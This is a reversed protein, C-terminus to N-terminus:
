KDFLIKWYHHLLMHRLGLCFVSFLLVAPHMICLCVNLCCLLVVPLVVPGPPTGLIIWAQEGEHTSLESQDKGSYWSPALVGLDQEEQYDIM